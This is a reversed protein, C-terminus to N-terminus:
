YRGRGHFECTRVGCHKKCLGSPRAPYENVRIARRMREIRPMTRLWFPILDSRFFRSETVSDHQLWVFQCTCHQVEPWHAFVVTAAMLLQDSNEDINRGTKWDIIRACPGDIHLVDLVTRFWPDATRAFFACPEIDETIALKEEVRLLTEKPDVGDLAWEAWKDWQAMSKPLPINDKVREAMAAHVALGWRNADSQVEPFDKAIKTHYYQRACNEFSSLASYSWAFPKSGATVATM